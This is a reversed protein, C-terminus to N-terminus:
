RAEYDYLEIIYYKFSLTVDGRAQSFGSRGKKRSQTVFLCVVVDIFNTFYNVSIILYCFFFSIAM